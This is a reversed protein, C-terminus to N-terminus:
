GNEPQGPGPEDKRWDALGARFIAWEKQNRPGVLGARLKRERRPRNLEALMKRTDRAMERAYERREEPTMEAVPKHEPLDPPQPRTM